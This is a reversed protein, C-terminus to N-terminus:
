GRKGGLGRPTLRNQIWDVLAGLSLALIAEPIAGTLILMNNNTGVAGTSLIVWAAWVQDDCGAGSWSVTYITWGFDSLINPMALPLEIKILVQLPSM